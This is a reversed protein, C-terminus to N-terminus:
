YRQKDLMSEKHGSARGAVGWNQWLFSLSKSDPVLTLSSLPLLLEGEDLPELDRYKAPFWGEM